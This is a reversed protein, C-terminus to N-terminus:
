SQAKDYKLQELIIYLPKFFIKVWSVPRADYRPLESRACLGNMSLKLLLSSLFMGSIVCLCVDFDLDFGVAGRIVFSSYYVRWWIAWGGLALLNFYVLYFFIKVM